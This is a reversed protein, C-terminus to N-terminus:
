NLFVNNASFNTTHNRMVCIASVHKVRSRCPSCKRRSKGISPDYLSSDDTEPMSDTCLRLSGDEKHLCMEMCLSGGEPDPSCFADSGHFSNTTDGQSLNSIENVIDSKIITCRIPMRVKDMSFDGAVEQGISNDNNLFGRTSKCPPEESDVIMDSDLVSPQQFFSNSSDEKTRSPSQCTGGDISLSDMPQTDEDISANAQTRDPTSPLLSSTQHPPSPSGLSVTQKGEQINETGEEEVEMDEDEVTVLVPAEELSACPDFTREQHSPEAELPPPSRTEIPLLPTNPLM